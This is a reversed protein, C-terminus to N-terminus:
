GRPNPANSSTRRAKHRCRSERQRILRSRSCSSRSSARPVRATVVARLFAGVRSYGDVMAQEEIDKPIAKLFGILLERYRDV